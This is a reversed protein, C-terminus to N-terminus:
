KSGPRAEVMVNHVDEMSRLWWGCPAEFFSSL